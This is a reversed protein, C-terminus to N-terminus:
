RMDLLVSHDTFCRLLESTLRLHLIQITDSRERLLEALRGICPCESVNYFLVSLEGCAM